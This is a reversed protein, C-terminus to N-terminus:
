SEDTKIGQMELYSKVTYMLAENFENESIYYVIQMLVNNFEDNTYEAVLQVADDRINTNEIQNRIDNLAVQIDAKSKPKFVSEENLFKARM